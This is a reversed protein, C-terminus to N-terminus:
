FLLDSDASADMKPSPVGNEKGATEDVVPEVPVVKTKKFPTTPEVIAAEKTFDLKPIDAFSAPFALSSRGREISTGGIM